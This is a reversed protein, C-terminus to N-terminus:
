GFRTVGLFPDINRLPSEKKLSLVHVLCTQVIQQGITVNHLGPSVSLYTATEIYWMTPLGSPGYISASIEEAIVKTKM